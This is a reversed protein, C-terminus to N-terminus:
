RYSHQSTTTRVTQARTKHPVQVAVAIESLPPRLHAEWVAPQTSRGKRPTVREEQEEEEDGDLEFDGDPDDHPVSSTQYESVGPSPRAIVRWNGALTLREEEGEFAVIGHASLTDLLDQSHLAHTGQHSVFGSARVFADQIWHKRIALGQVPVRISRYFEISQTTMVIYGASDLIFRPPDGARRNFAPGPLWQLNPNFPMEIIQQYLTTQITLQHFVNNDGYTRIVRLYANRVQHTANALRPAVSFDGPIRREYYRIGDHTMQEVGNVDHEFHVTSGVGLKDVRAEEFAISDDGVKTKTMTRPVPNRTDRCM